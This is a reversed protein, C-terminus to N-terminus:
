KTVLITFEYLDYDHLLAVKKSFHTKCYDFFYLPDAYYLNDKMYEADSYKTLLNFSFGSTALENIKHLTEIIYELWLDNNNEFKVNFIGSAVVFDNKLKPEELIWSVNKVDSYKAKAVEIMKESIDYGIYEMEEFRENLYELMAGYGCGFDLVSFKNKDCVLIKSLVKFRLVQSDVSNWDVGKPTLGFEEIKSTYYQNVQSKISNM